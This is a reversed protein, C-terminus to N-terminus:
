KTEGNKREPGKLKAKTNEKGDDKMDNNGDPQSLDDIIKAAAGVTSNM